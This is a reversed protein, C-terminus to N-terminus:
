PPADKELRAAVFGAGPQASQEIRDPQVEGPAGFLGCRVETMRLGAGTALRALDELALFRAGHFVSGPSRAQRAYACGWPSERQIFGVVAAGGPVLVRALERVVQEPRDVFELVTVAVVAGASGDRLPLAEGAGLAVSPLRSAAIRLMAPAPDIGLDVRLSAGFRGSGTGLEVWPRDLALILEQLCRLEIDFVSRGPPSDYWEDYATAAAADRDFPNRVPSVPYPKAPARQRSDGGPM